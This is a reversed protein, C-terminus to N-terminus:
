LKDLETTAFDLLASIMSESFDFRIGAAEYVEPVPVSGGLALANLYDRVTKKPNGKYARWIQLAGLQAMAYEIYYFPVEFIHIFQWGRKRYPPLDDDDILSSRTFRDELELWKVTREEESHDPHEYVWHQFADVLMIRPLISITGEIQERRARRLDDPNDYFVDWYDMSILEMSMSALEAVEASSGKFEFIKQEKTAFTHLAHGGEHLLTAVDRQVGVANMFIFPVHTEYLPCNYGGMEKGKRSALDLHGMSKMIELKESFGPDIRNFVEVCGDILDGASRFPRLPTKGHIDVSMDWPRLRDLELKRCRERDLQGVFPKVVNEVSRHFEFCHEPTYDFRELEKFMYDRYNGFGANLAIQHRLGVLETYIGNMRDFDSLARSQILRWAEERFERDYEKLYASMQPITKEEGRHQVSQNGVIKSFENAVEAAKAKLEVNETRFLSLRNKLIKLYRGFKDPPLKDAWESDVLKRILKEMSKSFNPEILTILNHYATQADQDNTNRTKNIYTWSYADYFVVQLEQIKDIWDEVDSVAAFGTESLEDFYVQLNEWRATDLDEAVFRRRLKEVVYTM